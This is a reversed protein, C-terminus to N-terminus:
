KYFPLGANIIKKNTNSTQSVKKLYTLLLQQKKPYKKSLELIELAALWLNKEKILTAILGDLKKQIKIHFLKKKDQPQNKQTAKQKEIFQKLNSIEKYFQCSKLHKKSAPKKLIKSVQFSDREQYKNPDAAGAFVSVVQQGIALDFIGWSPHFLVEEGQTVLCNKFTMLLLHNQKRLISKLNGKLCIGGEFKLCAQQGIKIGEKKLDQEKWLHMPKNNKTVLNLPTSYGQSHYKKGQKPIEKDNFALQCPGSFKLFCIKNKKTFLKETVGSIQLGSDLVVTNVVQSQISKKISEKGGQKWSLNETINDLVETLHSFSETVFLQPQFRTIDYPYNLCTKDLKIKKVKHIQKAEEISSILGAGYMKYSKISGILGYEATWWIFRSLASAESTHSMNKTIQTLKNEAKYIQKQTSKPNEKLDSLERIATYQERDESSSISKLVTAAYKKLFNGYNKDILFPVHGVTEHVIDPAPTYNIHNESRLESAIPLIGHWQFEMFAQPPIFGSITAATWGFDELHKSIDSIKPIKDLSIGTKKLGSLGNKHGYLSINKTIGKMIYRWVAQDKATYKQYNQNVLYKKLHPPVKNGM